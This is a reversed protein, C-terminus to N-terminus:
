LTLTLRAPIVEYAVLTSEPKISSIAIYRGTSATIQAVVGQYNIYILKGGVLITNHDSARMMALV